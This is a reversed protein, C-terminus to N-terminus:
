KVEIIAFFAKEPKAYATTSRGYSLQVTTRGAKAAKFHFTYTGEGSSTEKFTPRRTVTTLSDGSIKGARWQYGGTSAGRLQVYIDGGQYATITRGNDVSTLKMAGGAVEQPELFKGPRSLNAPRVPLWGQRKPSVSAGGNFYLFGWPTKYYDGRAPVAVEEGNYALRGRAAANSTGAGVVEYRYQWKGSKYAGNKRLDIKAFEGDKPKEREGILRYCRECRRLEASCPPCLINFTSHTVDRCEKCTGFQNDGVKQRCRDCKLAWALSSIALLLLPATLLAIRRNM